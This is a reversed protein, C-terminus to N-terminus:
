VLVTVNVIASKPVSTLLKNLGPIPGGHIKLRKLVSRSKSSTSWSWSKLPSLQLRLADCFKVTISCAEKISRCQESVLQWNDAFTNPLMGCRCEQYYPCVGVHYVADCICESPWRRSVRHYIQSAFSYQGFNQM